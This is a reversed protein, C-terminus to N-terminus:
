EGLGLFEAVGALTLMRRVQSDDLRLTCEADHKICHRKIAVLVQIGRSDIFTVSRLDLILHRLRADARGRHELAEVVVGKLDYANSLDLEGSLLFEMTDQLQVTNVTLTTPRTLSRALQEDTM